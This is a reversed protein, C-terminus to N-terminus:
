PQSFRWRRFGSRAKPSTFRGHARGTKPSRCGHRAVVALDGIRARGWPIIPLLEAYLTVITEHGRKRLARHAGTLTRYSGAFSKIHSTGQLGDIVKLGLFFCDNVGYAYAEARATRIIGSVLASRNM